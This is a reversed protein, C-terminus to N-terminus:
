SFKRPSPLIKQPSPVTTPFVRKITMAIPDIEDVEGNPNAVTSPIALYFRKKLGDWVPQEIGGTAQPYKIQGLVHPPSVTSIFTIFPPTDRDNAILIIHDAPDYALEDSRQTGGTSVIFPAAFPHALDIFIASSVPHAANPAGGVVKMTMVLGTSRSLEM